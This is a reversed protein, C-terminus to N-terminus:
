VGRPKATSSKKPSPAGLREKVLHQLDKLCSAGWLNKLVVVPDLRYALCLRPLSDLSMRLPDVSGAEMQCLWPASCYGQEAAERQSLGLEKRRKALWAGVEVARGPTPAWGLIVARRSDTRRPM